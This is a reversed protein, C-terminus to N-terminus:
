LLVGLEDLLSIDCIRFLHFLWLEEDIATWSEQFSEFSRSNWNTIVWCWPCKCCDFLAYWLFTIFNPHVLVSPEPCLCQWYKATCPTARLSCQNSRLGNVKMHMKFFTQYVTLMCIYRWFFVAMNLFRVCRPSANPLKVKSMTVTTFVWPIRSM